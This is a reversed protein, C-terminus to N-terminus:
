NALKISFINEAVTHLSKTSSAKITSAKLEESPSLHLNRTAEMRLLLVCLEPTLKPSKDLSNQVIIGLAMEM